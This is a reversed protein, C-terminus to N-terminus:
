SLFHNQQHDKDLQHFMNGIFNFRLTDDRTHTKQMSQIKYTHLKLRKHMIDHVTAKLLKLEAKKCLSKQPVLVFINM